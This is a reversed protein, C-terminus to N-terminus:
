EQDGRLRKYYTYKCIGLEKCIDDIKMGHKRMEKMREVDVTKYNPHDQRSPHKIPGHIKTHASHTVIALNDLRNDQKDGNLHHVDFMKPLVIGLAKEVVYRHEMVNGDKSASPHNPKHLLVYGKKTITRYNKFNGSNAGSCALSRVGHFGEIDKAIGLRHAKHQVSSKSKGIVKGIDEARESPYREKLYNLHWESWEQGSKM